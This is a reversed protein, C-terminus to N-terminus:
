QITVAFLPEGAHGVLRSQRLRGNCLCVPDAFVFYRCRRAVLDIPQRIQRAYFVSDCDHSKTCAIGLAVVDNFMGLEQYAVWVTLATLFMLSAFVALYIRVTPGHHDDAM